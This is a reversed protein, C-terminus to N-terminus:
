GVQTLDDSREEGVAQDDRNEHHDGAAGGSRVPQEVDARGQADPQPSVGGSLEKGQVPHSALCRIVMVNASVVRISSPPTVGLASLGSRRVNVASYLAWIRPSYSAASWPSRPAIKRRSPRYEEWVVSHTRALEAEAKEARTRLQEVLSGRRWVGRRVRGGPLAMLEVAAPSRVVVDPAVLGHEASLIFWPLGSREADDREKRFLPSVYSDRAAAPAAAKAKVCAVLLLSSAGAEHGARTAGSAARAAITASSARSRVM